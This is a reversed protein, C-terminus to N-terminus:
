PATVTVQSMVTGASAMASGRLREHRARRYVGGPLGTWQLPTEIPVAEHGAIRLPAAPFAAVALCTDTASLM